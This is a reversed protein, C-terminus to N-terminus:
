RAREPSLARVAPLSPHPRMLAGAKHVYCGLEVCRDDSDPADDSGRWVGVFPHANCMLLRYILVGLGFADHSTTRTVSRLDRGFLKPPLYGPSYMNCFHLTDWPSAKEVVQFSDNDVVTVRAETDLLINQPKVDGIVYGKRHISGFATAVNAATLAYGHQGTGSM